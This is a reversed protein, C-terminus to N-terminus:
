RRSPAIGSANEYGLNNLKQFTMTPENRAEMTPHLVAVPTDNTDLVTHVPAPTDTELGIIMIREPANAEILTSQKRSLITGIFPDKFPNKFPDKFPDTEDLLFDSRGTWAPRAASSNLKDCCTGRMWLM